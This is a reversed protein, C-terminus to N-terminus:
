RCTENCALFNLISNCRVMTTIRKAVESPSSKNSFSTNADPLINRVKVRTNALLFKIKKFQSTSTWNNVDVERFWTTFDVSVLIYNWTTYVGSCFVVISTELGAIPCMFVVMVTLQLSSWGGAPLRVFVQVRFLLYSRLYTILLPIITTLRLNRVTM